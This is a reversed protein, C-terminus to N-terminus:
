GYIATCYIALLTKWIQLANCHLFWRLPLSICLVSHMSSVCNVLASWWCVVTSCQSSGRPVITPPSLRSVSWEETTKILSMKKQHKKTHFNLKMLGLSKDHIIQWKCTQPPGLRSVRWKGTTQTLFMKQPFVESTIKYMPSFTTEDFEIIIMYKKNTRPLCYQRRGIRSDLDLNCHAQRTRPKPLLLDILVESRQWILLM